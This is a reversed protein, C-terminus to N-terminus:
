ITIAKKGPVIQAFRFRDNVGVNSRVTALPGGNSMEGQGLGKGWCMTGFRGTVIRGLPRGEGAM